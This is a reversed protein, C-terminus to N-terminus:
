ASSMGVPESLSGSEGDSDSRQIIGPILDAIDEESSHMVADAIMVALRALTKRQESPLEMTFIVRREVAHHLCWEAAEYAARVSDEDSFTNVTM